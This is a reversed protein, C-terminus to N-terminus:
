QKCFKGVMGGADLCGEPTVTLVLNDGAVTASVRGDEVTYAGERTTGGNVTVPVTVGNLTVETAGTVFLKGDSKLELKAIPNGPSQGDAVYVGSVGGAGCAALFLLAAATFIKLVHKGLDM